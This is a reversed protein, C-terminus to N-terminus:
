ITVLRIIKIMVLLLGIIHGVPRLPTAVRFITPLNVYCGVNRDLLETSVSLCSVKTTATTKGTVVVGMHPLISKPAGMAVLYLIAQCDLCPVGIPLSTPRCSLAAQLASVFALAVLFAALRVREPLSRVIRPLVVIELALSTCLLRWIPKLHEVVVGKSLITFPLVPHQAIQSM